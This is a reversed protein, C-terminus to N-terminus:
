NSGASSKAAAAHTLVLSEQDKAELKGYFSKIDPYETAYLFTQGMVVNRYLTITNAVTKSDTKFYALSADKSALKEEETKPFSEVAIGAPLRFRVADATTSPYHMDITVERTAHPFRPKANFEFLNAPVLLRKGTSSGIPGKIEYSVKLPQDPNTLNEIGNVKVETNAPLMHELEEKFATHISTDDGTLAEQRWRLAPAGTFTLTVVGTAAGQEDLAIDAIRSTVSQNYTAGPTKVLATGGDTQRLGSSSAHKWSLQGYQCYRQGPDFFQDKGDVNVIAIDDDLQSTSLYSELFIRRSRDAVGMLYAKFGAARALSVFLAALQDDNGRKRNYVDDASQAPKLGAANDEHESHERTFQTNEMGQVAAYLKRLKAEQSDGPAVLTAAAAKVAKGPGIFKDREKSWDKGDRNWFEASTKYNTYYFLVRYSLSDFPPMFEEKPLPKVNEIDLSLTNKGHVDSQVVKVGVPLIPTWAVSELPNGHSDEITGSHSTNWAFHAKRVFLESQISWDPHMFYSDDYHFKYRYEIISGVTVDPLTFIKEKVKYGDLKEVLKEYPKGTFPIITGDPHITRAAISDLTIGASFGFPLQINALDKGGETLIKIRYYYGFARLADDTTEEKYLMVATAGPVEPISTM